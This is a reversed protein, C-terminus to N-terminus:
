SSTGTGVVFADTADVKTTVADISAQIAADEAAEHARIDADLKDVSANLKSFDVM